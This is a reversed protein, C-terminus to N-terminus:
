KKINMINASNPFKSSQNIFNFTIKPASASHDIVGNNSSSVIRNRHIQNQDLEISKKKGPSNQQFNIKNPKNM